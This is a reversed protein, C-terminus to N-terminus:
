PSEPLSHERGENQEKLYDMLPQFYHLMSEASMDNGLMARTHERWDVTAGPYMLDHLFKGVEKNGYYNTARPDQKLINTAIHDHFQFLLVYSLAYDYYQGADNNIHTKSAADCYEEGRDSPPAIGQYKM